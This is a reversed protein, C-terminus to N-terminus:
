AFNVFFDRFFRIEVGFFQSFFMEHFFRFGRVCGIGRGEELGFRRRQAAGWAAEARGGGGVRGRDLAGGGDGDGGGIGEIEM